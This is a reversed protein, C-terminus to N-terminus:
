VKLADDVPTIFIASADGLLLELSEFDFKRRIRLEIISNLLHQRVISPMKSKIKSLQDMFLNVCPCFSEPSGLPREDVERRPGRRETSMPEIPDSTMPMTKPVVASGAIALTTVGDVVRDTPVVVVIVGVVVTAVVVVVM